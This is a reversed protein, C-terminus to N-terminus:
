KKRRQVKGQENMRYEYIDDSWQDGPKKGEINVKPKPQIRGLMQQTEKSSLEPFAAQLRTGANTYVKNINNDLKGTLKDLNNEIDKLTEKSIEGKMGKTYWDKLKRGWSTGGVYRVVDTDTLVGVEGMARALKTGLAATAAQNGNRISDLMGTVNEFEMAQEISKKYRPDDKLLGRAQTLVRSRQLHDQKQLKDKRSREIQERKLETDKRRLDLNEKQINEQAKRSEALGAERKEALDQQREAAKRGIYTKLNDPDKFRLQPANLMSGGAAAAKATGRTAGYQALGQSLQTFADLLAAKREGSMGSEDDTPKKPAESSTKQQPAITPRSTPSAPERSVEPLNPVAPQSSQGMAYPVESPAMPPKIQQGKMRDLEDMLQSYADVPDTNNLQEPTLPSQGSVSEPQQPTIDKLLKEYETLKDNAM